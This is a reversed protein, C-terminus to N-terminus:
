LGISKNGLGEEEEEKKGEVLLRRKHHKGMLGWGWRRLGVKWSELVVFIRTERM